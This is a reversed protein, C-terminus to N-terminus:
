GLLRSVQQVPGDSGAFLALAMWLSFGSSAVKVVWAPVKPVLQWWSRRNSKAAAAAKPAAKAKGKAAAAAHEKAAAMATDQAVNGPGMELNFLHVQAKLWEEAEDKGLHPPPQPVKFPDKRAQQYTLRPGLSNDRKKAQLSM